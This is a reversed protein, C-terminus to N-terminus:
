RPTSLRDQHSPSLVPRAAAARGAPRRLRQHRPKGARLSPGGLVVPVMSLTLEDLSIRQSPQTNTMDGTHGVQEYADM